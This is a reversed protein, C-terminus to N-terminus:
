FPLDNEDIYPLNDMQVQQGMEEYPSTENKYSENNNLESKQPSETYEPAPRGESKKELFDFSEVIIDTTYIKKGNEQEYSGTQIRGELGILSGKHYYETIIEASKNWAVCSIFDVNRTGDEKKSKRNIAVTFRLYKNEEAVKLELDNCIRGILSVRNM